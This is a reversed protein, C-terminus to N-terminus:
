HDLAEGLPSRRAEFGRVMLAAFRRRAAPNSAQLGADATLVLNLDALGVDPRLRGSDKARDILRAASTLSATRMATLDVARPFASKVATTFGHDRAQLACLKGVAVRFGRGPDPDTLGEDVASQWASAQETFVAAVLTEKTPFHRYVTAPGVDARRAIERVPVALGETVFVARAADLVRGRSGRDRPLRATVARVKALRDRADM